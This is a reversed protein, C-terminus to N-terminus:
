YELENKKLKLSDLRQAFLFATLILMLVVMGGVISWHLHEILLIGLLFYLSSIIIHLLTALRTFVSPLILLIPILILIGIFAIILQIM